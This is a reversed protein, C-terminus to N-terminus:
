SKGDAFDKILSFYRAPNNTYMGTHTSSKFVELKKPEGAKEFLMQSHRLPIVEDNGGHVILLPVKLKQIERGNDFDHPAIIWLPIIGFMDKSIERVSYFAGELIVGASPKKTAVRLTPVGGLSQGIFILNSPEVSKENILYEYAILTESVIGKKSPKGDSKGYGSYDFIFVSFGSDVYGRIVDLRDAINGGNGHVYLITKRGDGKFYWGHIKSTEGTDLYVDEAVLGVDEPLSLFERDPYFLMKTEFWRGFIFVLGVLLVVATFNM